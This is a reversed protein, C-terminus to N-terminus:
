AALSQRNGAAVDALVTLLWPGFEMEVGVQRAAKWRALIQGLAGDTAARGALLRAFCRNLEILQDVRRGGALILAAANALASRDEALPAEPALADVVRWLEANFATAAARAAETEARHLELVSVEMVVALAIDLRTGDKIWAAM